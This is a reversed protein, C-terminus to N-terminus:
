ENRGILQSIALERNFPSVAWPAAKPVIAEHAFRVIM